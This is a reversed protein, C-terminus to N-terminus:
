RARSVPPARPFRFVTRCNAMNYKKAHILDVLVEGEPHDDAQDHDQQERDKLSGLLVALFLGIERIEELRDLLPPDVGHDDAAVQHGVRQLVAAGGLLGVHDVVGIQHLREPVV